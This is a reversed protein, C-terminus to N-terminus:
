WEWKMQSSIHYSKNKLLYLPLDVSATIDWYDVDTTYPGLAVIAWWATHSAAFLGEVLFVCTSRCIHAAWTLEHYVMLVRALSLICSCLVDARMVLDSKEETPRDRCLAYDRNPMYWYVEGRRQGRWTCTKQIPESCVM